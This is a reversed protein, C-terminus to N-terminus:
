GPSNNNITSTTLTASTTITAFTKLAIFEFCIVEGKLVKVVSEVSDRFDIKLQGKTLKLRNKQISINLM